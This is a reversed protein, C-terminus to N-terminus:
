RHPQRLCLTATSPCSLTSCGMEFCSSLLFLCSFLSGCSMGLLRRGGPSQCICPGPLPAILHNPRTPTPTAKNSSIHWQAHAKGNKEQKGESCSTSSQAEEAGNRDPNQWAEPRSSLSSFRLVLLGARILHGKNSNGQDYHRKVAISVRLCRGCSRRKWIDIWIKSRNTCGLM